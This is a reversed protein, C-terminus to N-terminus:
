NEDISRWWLENNDQTVLEYKIKGNIVDIQGEKYGAEHGLTHGCMYMLVGVGLITLIVTVIGCSENM